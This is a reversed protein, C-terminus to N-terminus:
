GPQFSPGRAVMDPHAAALEDLTSGIVPISAGFVLEGDALWTSLPRYVSYEVVHRSTGVLTGLSVRVRREPDLWVKTGTNTEDAPPGWAARLAAEVKPTPEFSLRIAVGRPAN